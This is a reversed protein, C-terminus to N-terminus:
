FWICRFRRRTKEGVKRKKRGRTWTIISETVGFDDWDTGGTKNKKQKKQSSLSPAPPFIHPSFELEPNLDFFSRPSQQKHLTGPPLVCVSIFAMNKFYIHTGPYFCKWKRKKNYAVQDNIGDTHRLCRVFVLLLLRRQAFWQFMWGWLSNPTMLLLVNDPFCVPLRCGLRGSRVWLWLQGAPPLGTSAHSKGVKRRQKKQKQVVVILAVTAALLFLGFFGRLLGLLKSGRWTGPINNFRRNMDAPVSSARGAMPIGTWEVSTVRFQLM